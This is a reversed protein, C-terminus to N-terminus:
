ACADCPDTAVMILCVDKLVRCLYLENVEAQNFIAHGDQVAVVKAVPVQAIAEEDIHESGYLAYALVESRLRRADVVPCPVSMDEDAGEPSVHDVVGEGEGFLVVEVGDDAAMNVDDLLDSLVAHEIDISSCPQAMVM